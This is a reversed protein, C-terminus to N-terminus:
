RFKKIIIIERIISSEKSSVGKEISKTSVKKPLNITLFFKNFYVELIEKNKANGKKQAELAKCTRILGLLGPLNEEEFYLAYTYYNRALGLNVHGGM